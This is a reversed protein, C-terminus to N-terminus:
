QASIELINNYPFQIQRPTDTKTMDIGLGLQGQSGSGVSFVFGQATLFLTFTSGGRVQVVSKNQMGSCYNNTSTSLQADTNGGWAMVSQYVNVQKHSMKWRLYKRLTHENEAESPIHEVRKHKHVLVSVLSLHYDM